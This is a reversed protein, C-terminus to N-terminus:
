RKVASAVDDEHHRKQVNERIRRAESANFMLRGQAILQLRESDWKASMMGSRSHSGHGLLLHGIEHALVAGLVVSPSALRKTSLERIRDYFLVARYPVATDGEIEAFGFADAPAPGRSASRGAINIALDTPRRTGGCAFHAALEEPDTPCEVFAVGLGTLSLIRGAEEGARLLVGSTRAYDFLLVTIHPGGGDSTGQAAVIAVACTLGAALRYLGGSAKM